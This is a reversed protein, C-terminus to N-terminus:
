FLLAIGHLQGHLGTNNHSTSVEMNKYIIPQCIATLNDAKLAPRRKDGPLDRTSMETPPQASGLPWLAAPLILGISIVIAEDPISSVVNRNTTYHRL